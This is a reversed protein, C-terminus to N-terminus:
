AWSSSLFIIVILSEFAILFILIKLENKEIKIGIYYTLLVLLVFPFADQINKFNNIFFIRNLISLAIILLIILVNINIKSSIYKQTFIIKNYKVLLYILSLIYTYHPIYAITPLYILLGFM